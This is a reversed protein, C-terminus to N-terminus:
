SFLQKLRALYEGANAANEAPAWSAREADAPPLYPGAKAELFVSGAELSVLTHWTGHPFDVGLCEGGAILLTKSLVSGADDFILLGLKGRLLM